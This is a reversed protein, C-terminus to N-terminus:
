TAPEPDWDLTKPDNAPRNISLTYGVFAYGKRMLYNRTFIWGAGREGMWSFPELVVTGNFRGPDKPKRILFRTVYPADFVQEGSATIAPALGLLYYEEEVYGGGELDVYETGHRSASALPLRGSPPVLSFQPMSPTQAGVPAAMTLVLSAAVSLRPSWVEGMPKM